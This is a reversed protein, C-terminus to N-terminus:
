CRRPRCAAAAALRDGDRRRQAQRAVDGDGLEPSASPSRRAAVVLRLLEAEAVVTSMGCFVARRAHERVSSRLPLPRDVLRREHQLREPLAGIAHRRQLHGHDGAAM